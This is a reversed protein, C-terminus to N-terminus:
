PGSDSLEFLKRKLENFENPNETRLREVETPSNAYQIYERLEDSPEKLALSITMAMYQEELRNLAEVNPSETNPKAELSQNQDINQGDSPPLPAGEQEYLLDFLLQDIKRM